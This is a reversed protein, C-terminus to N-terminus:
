IKQIIRKNKRRFINKQKEVKKHNYLAAVSIIIAFYTEIGFVRNEILGFIIFMLVYIKENKDLRDASLYFLSILILIYVIGFCTLCYITLNDAYVSNYGGMVEYQGFYVKQGLFTTGYQQIARYFDSFRGSGMSDFLLFFKSILPINITFAFSVSIFAIIAMGYKVFFDIIRKLFNNEYFLSILFLAIVLFTAESRTFYYMIAMFGLLIVWYIGKMKEKYLFVIMTSLFVFIKAANNPHDYFMCYRGVGNQYILTLNGTHTFFFLIFVLFHLLFVSGIVYFIIRCCEKINKGKSLYSLLVIYLVANTSQIRSSNIGLLLFFILFILAYPKSKQKVFLYISIILILLLIPYKVYAFLPLLIVSSNLVGQIAVLAVLIIYLRDNSFTNTKRLNIFNDM